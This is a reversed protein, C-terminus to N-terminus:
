VEKKVYKIVEVDNNKSREEMANFVKDRLDDKRLNEPIETNVFFPGDLYVIIKPAKRHKRKKYTTTFAFVPDSFQVPYRFSTSKYPRIKTYYPWVHAEPYIIIANDTVSRKEVAEIFSRMGKFSDPIPLAGVMKMFTRTGKKAVNQSNVIVYSRQPFTILNPIYADAPINTHNGYLFVGSNRYGKMAKRNVIKIDFKFKMYLYAVPTMVLRYVIFAFFRWFINNHIYKYNSELQYEQKKIGSFEDNLENSYYITKQEAM